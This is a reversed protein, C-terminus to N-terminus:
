RFVQASSSDGHRIAGVPVARDSRTAGTSTTEFPQRTGDEASLRPAGRRILNVRAPGNRVERTLSPVAFVISKVGNDLHDLRAM